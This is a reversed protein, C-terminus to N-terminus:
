KQTPDTFRRFYRVLWHTTLVGIQAETGDVRGISNGKECTFFANSNGNADVGRKVDVVMLAQLDALLARGKRHCRESPNRSDFPYTVQVLIELWCDYKAVLKDPQADEEAEYVWACPFPGEFYDFPESDEARSVLNSAALTEVVNTIIRQRVSNDSM